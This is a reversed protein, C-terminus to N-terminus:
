PAFAFDLVGPAHTQMWLEGPDRRRTPDLASHAIMAHERAIGYRRVLARWVRKAAAVQAPTFADGHGVLEIGIACHNARLNLGPVKRATSSGAHYAMRTFEVAQFIEGDAEITVHWSTKGRAVRHAKQEAAVYEPYPRMRRRLMSEATGPATATYHAVIACPNIPPGVWSRDSRMVTCGSLWGNLEVDLPKVLSPPPDGFSAREVIERAELLGELAHQTELGLKGDADLGISTQFHRVLETVHPWGFAGRMFRDRNYEGPKM